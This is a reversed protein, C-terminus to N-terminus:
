KKNVESLTQNRVFNRFVKYVKENLRKHFFVLTSFQKESFKKDFSENLM